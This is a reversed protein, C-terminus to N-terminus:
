VCNETDLSLLAAIRLMGILRARITGDVPYASYQLLPHHNLSLQFLGCSTSYFILLTIFVFHGPEEFLFEIADHQM